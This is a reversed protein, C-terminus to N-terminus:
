SRAATAAQPINPTGSVTWIGSRELLPALRKILVAGLVSLTTDGPVALVFCYLFLPGVAIPTNLVYNCIVYYYIMGAAYVVALGALNAALYRAVTRVLYVVALGAFNAVLYHGLTKERFSQALRGTLYTGLCFGIIYGFSPKLVYWLGGGETFIPLGALGLLMYATVSITGLRPGLILGALMTFLYQLTFPVVPVPIKIFAGVAILATFLSCFVLQKTKSM